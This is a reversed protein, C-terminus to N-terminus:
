RGLLLLFGTVVLATGVATILARTLPRHFLIGLGILLSGDAGCVSMGVVFWDTAGRSHLVIQDLWPFVTLLASIELFWDAIAKRVDRPPVPPPADITTM